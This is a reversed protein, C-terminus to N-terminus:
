QELMGIEVPAWCSRNVFVAIIVRNKCSCNWVFLVM